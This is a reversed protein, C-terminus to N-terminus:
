LLMVNHTSIELKQSLNVNKTRWKTRRYIILGQKTYSTIIVSSNSIVSIEAQARQHNFHMKLPALYITQAM